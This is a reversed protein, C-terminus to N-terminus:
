EKEKKKETNTLMKKTNEVIYSEWSLHIHIVVAVM